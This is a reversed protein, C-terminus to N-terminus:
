EFREPPRRYRRLYHRSSSPETTVSVEQLDAAPDQYKASSDNEEDSTNNKIIAITMNLSIWGSSNIKHDGVQFQEDNWPHIVADTPICSQQIITIDACPDYVAQIKINNNIMVPILARKNAYTKVCNVSKSTNTTAYRGPTSNRNSNSNRRYDSSNSNTTDRTNNARNTSGSSSLLPANAHSNSERFQSPRDVSSRRPPPPLHCMFSVHGKRGCRWCNIDQINDTAPNYKHHYEDHISFSRFQPRSSQRKNEQKVSRIADLATARDILEGVTNSNLTIKTNHEKDTIMIM